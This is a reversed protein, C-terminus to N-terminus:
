RVEVNVNTIKFGLRRNDDPAAFNTAGLFQWRIRTEGSPVNVTFTCPQRQRTARGRWLESGDQRVLVLDGDLGEVLCNVVIDHRTATPNWLVCDAQAGAWRWRDDGRREPPHWGDGTLFVLRQMGVAWPDFPEHRNPGVLPPVEPTSTPTLRLVLHPGEEHLVTMGAALCEARLAKGQDPYATTYVHLAAFGARELENKRETAPLSEMRRAWVLAPAGALHGYSIRITSAFFFPRFEEYDTMAGIAPQELFPRVPMQFVMANAPLTDRMAAGVRRDIESREFMRQTAATTPPSPLQDWLGIAVVIATATAAVARGTNRFRRSACAALALLAAAGLFISYRNTARFVETVLLAMVSGGGGVMGFLVVFLITPAPAPRLSARGRVLRQVFGAGVIAIGIAAVIGVYSALNEGRKPLSRVYNEALEGFAPLRHHRPPVLLEIPRLALTEVDAYDRVLVNRQEVFMAMLAHWNCALFVAAFTALSAIGITLNIGRRKTALQYLLGLTTLMGFMLGFYPTASGVYAAIALCGFQWTRRELAARASGISWAVLLTAPVAFSLAFAYHDFGREVNTHCFSFLLAAGAAFLPRHGLARSCLFFVVTGLVHSLLAAFHSAAALGVVRAVAGLLVFVPLDSLPYASWDAGFPAGLRDFHRETFSRLGLDRALEVRALTELGDIRYDLPTRRVEFQWVGSAAVWLLATVVVLGVARWADRRSLPTTM